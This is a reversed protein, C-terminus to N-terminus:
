MRQELIIIIRELEAVRTTLSDIETQRLLILQRVQQKAALNSTAVQLENLVEEILAIRAEEYATLAM